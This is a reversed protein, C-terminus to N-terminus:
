ELSGPPRVGSDRKVAASEQFGSQLGAGRQSRRRQNHAAGDQAPIAAHGRTLPNNKAANADPRAPTVHQTTEQVFGIHLEHGDAVDSGPAALGDLLHDIALVVVLIAAHDM